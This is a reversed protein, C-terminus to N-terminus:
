SDKFVDSLERLTTKIYADPGVRLLRRTEALVDVRYTRVMTAITSLATGFLRQYTLGMGPRVRLEKGALPLAIALVIARVLIQKVYPDSRLQQPLKKLLEHLAPERTALRAEEPLPDSVRLSKRQVKKTKKKM